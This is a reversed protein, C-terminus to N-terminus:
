FDVFDPNLGSFGAEEMTRITQMDDNDITFTNVDINAVINKPTVSKPLPLIGNQLCFKICLQAVSVNYKEAINKLLENDLIRGSGIPSWAEVLINNKKCYDVVDNQLYGPHYEIQNVMPPIKATEALSELHHVLFNCVGIAKINGQNYLDEMARWTESNLEKWNDFQKANAPWHILYLDVYDTQLHELSKEFADLTSQYGRSTNWVKTTLFIDKRDLQSEKIADGVGKENEYIKATDIHTYGNELAFGVANKVNEGDPIQWTGFGIEPIELGNNLVFNKM